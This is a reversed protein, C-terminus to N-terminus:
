LPLVYVEILTPHRNLPSKLIGIVRILEAKNLWLCRAAPSANRDRLHIQVQQSFVSFHLAFFPQLLARLPLLIIKNEASAFAIRNLRPVDQATMQPWYEFSRLQRLGQVEVAKSMTARRQQQRRASVRLNNTFPETVRAYHQRQVGVTM